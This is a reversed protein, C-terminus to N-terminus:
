SPFISVVLKKYATSAYFQDLSCVALDSGRMKWSELVPPAALTGSNRTSDM